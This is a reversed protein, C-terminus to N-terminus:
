KSKMKTIRKELETVCLQLGAIKQIVWGQFAPDRKGEHEPHADILEAYHTDFELMLEDSRADVQDGLPNPEGGAWFARAMTDPSESKM